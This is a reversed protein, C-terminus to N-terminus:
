YDVGNNGRNAGSPLAGIITEDLNPTSLDDLAKDLDREYDLEKKSLRMHNGDKYEISVRRAWLEHLERPVGNADAANLALDTSGTLNALDAPLLDYVLRFGDDVATITGSLIYVKKRRIFYRPKLNDFSNVIKSEQLSDKYHKRAIPKAIVYDGGSSFMLELDVIVNLAATPITYERSSSSAVLNQDGKINFIEPRRQQLKLVIEDKMLNVDILMDAAEYTTTTTHTKRHILTALQTGTM